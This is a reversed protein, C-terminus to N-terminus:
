RWDHRDDWDRHHWGPEEYYVRHPREYVVCGALSACLVGLLVLKGIMPSLKRRM